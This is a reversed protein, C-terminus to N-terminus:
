TGDFYNDINQKIFTITNDDLHYKTPNKYHILDTFKYKLQYQKIMNYIDEKLYEQRIVYYNKVKYRLNYFHNNKMNRLEILNKAEEIFFPYIHNTNVNYQIKSEKGFNKPCTDHYAIYKNSVFEFMSKGKINKIHYPKKYMSGVWDYVNRVIIIFLTEDSDYISKICENDTTTNHIGRPTVGKIYWHKYGYEQTFDIFLMNSLIYKLYTTGSNREGFITFNKLGM